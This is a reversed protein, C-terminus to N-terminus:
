APTAPSAPLAPSAPALSTLSTLSTCTTLTCLPHTHHTDHAYSLHKAPTQTLTTPLGTSSEGPLYQQAAAGTWTARHEAGARAKSDLRAAGIAVNQENISEMRERLHVELPGEASRPVISHDLAMTM